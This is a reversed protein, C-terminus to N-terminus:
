YSWSLRRYIFGMLWAPGILLFQLDKFFSPKEGEIKHGVFQGVWAAVFVVLAVQWLAYPATNDVAWCILLSLVMFLGIGLSLKPSLMIYYFQAGLAGVVAWNLGSIPSPISWVLALVSWFILPVCVWHILKNTPNTHSQGYDDFWEDASRM